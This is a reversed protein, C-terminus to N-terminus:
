KRASLTEKQKAHLSPIAVVETQTRRTDEVVRQKQTKRKTQSKKQARKAARDAKEQEKFLQTNQQGLAIMELLCSGVNHGNADLSKIVDGIAVCGPYFHSVYALVADQKSTFVVRPKNHNNNKSKKNKNPKPKYNFYNAIDEISKPCLGCYPTLRYLDTHSVLGTDPTLFMDSWADKGQM